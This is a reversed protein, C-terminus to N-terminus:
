QPLTAVSNLLALYPQVSLLKCCYLNVYMCSTALVPFPYFYWMSHKLCAHMIYYIFWHESNLYHVIVSGGESIPSLQFDIDMITPAHVHDLQVVYWLYQLYWSHPFEPQSTCTMRPCLLIMWLCPIQVTGGLTHVADVHRRVVRGDGLEIHYSLPGTVKAVTGPIWILPTSSFDKTYVLHGVKFSRLPQSNNHSAAQEAQKKQVHQQLDPFLRDFRSRLRCNMLLQTPAIGTTHPTIRYLSSFSPSDSKYHTARQQKLDVSSLKCREKPWAMVQHQLSTLLTMRLCSPTSSKAQSPLAM